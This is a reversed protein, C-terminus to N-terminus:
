QPGTREGAGNTPSVNALGLGRGWKDVTSVVGFSLLGRSDTVTTAVKLGQNSLPTQCSSSCVRLSPGVGLAAASRHSRQDAPPEQATNIFMGTGEEEM